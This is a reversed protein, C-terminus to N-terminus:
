LMPTEPTFLVASGWLMLADSQVYLWVLGGVYTHSFCSAPRVGATECMERNDASPLGTLMKQQQHKEAEFSESSKDCPTKFLVRQETGVSCAPHTM